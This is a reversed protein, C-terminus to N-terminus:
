QDDSNKKRSSEEILPSDRCGSSNGVILSVQFAMSSKYKSLISMNEEHTRTIRFCVISLSRDFDM